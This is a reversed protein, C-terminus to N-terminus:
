TVQVNNFVSLLSSKLTHYRKMLSVVREKAEKVAVHTTPLDNKVSVFAAAPVADARAEKIVSNTACDLAKAVNGANKCM